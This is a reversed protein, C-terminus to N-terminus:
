PYEEYYIDCKRYITNEPRDSDGLCTFFFCIGFVSVCIVGGSVMKNKLIHGQHKVKVKVSSGSRASLHM